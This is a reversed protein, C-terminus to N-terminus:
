SKAEPSLGHQSASSDGAGPKPMAESPDVGAAATTGRSEGSPRPMEHIPLLEARKKDIAVALEHMAQALHKDHTAMFCTRVARFTATAQDMSLAIPVFVRTEDHIVKSM